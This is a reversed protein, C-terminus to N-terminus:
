PVFGPCPVLVYLNANSVDSRNFSTLMPRLNVKHLKGLCLMAVAFMRIGIQAQKTIRPPSIRKIIEQRYKVGPVAGAVM